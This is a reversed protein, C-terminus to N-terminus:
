LHGLVRQTCALYKPYIQRLTNLDISALQVRSKLDNGGIILVLRLSKDSDLLDVIRGLRYCPM